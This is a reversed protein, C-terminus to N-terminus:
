KETQAVLHWFACEPGIKACNNGVIDAYAARFQEPTDFDKGVVRPAIFNKQVHICSDVTEHNYLPAHFSSSEGYGVLGDDTTLRVIIAQKNSIVGWSTEFSRIMPLEVRLIEFRVIKM